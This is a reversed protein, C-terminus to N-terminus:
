DNSEGHTVAKNAWMAAQELNTLAFSLERCRPITRELTDKIEAFHDRIEQMIIVEEPTAKVYEFTGAM